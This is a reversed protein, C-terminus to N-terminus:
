HGSLRDPARTTLPQDAIGEIALEAVSTVPGFPSGRLADEGVEMPNEVDFIAGLLL